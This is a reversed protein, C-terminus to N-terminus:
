KRLEKEFNIINDIAEQKDYDAFLVHNSETFQVLEKIESSVGNFIIESSKFDATDDNISQQILIPASIKNLGEVTQKIFDASYKVPQFPMNWYAIHNGFEHPNNIQAIRVKKSYITWDATLYMYTELPIIRIWKYRARIYPSVLYISSVSKEEALRSALTGGFSFGILSIKGCEKELTEHEQKIQVYWDDLTLNLIKSPVQGHGILKPVIVKEGFEKNIEQALTKLEYPSSSYGHVLLWCHQTDGDLMIEQSNLIQEKSYDWYDLDRSDIKYSQLFGTKAYVGVLFIAIFIVIVLLTVKTKNRKKITNITFNKKTKKDKKKVM